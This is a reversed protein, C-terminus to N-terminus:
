QALHIPKQMTAWEELCCSMIQEDTFAEIETKMRSLIENTYACM